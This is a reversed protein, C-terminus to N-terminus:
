NHGNNLSRERKDYISDGFAEFEAIKADNVFISFATGDQNKMGMTTAIIRDNSDTTITWFLRREKM